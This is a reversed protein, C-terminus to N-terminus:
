KERKALPVPSHLRAFERRPTALCGNASEHLEGVTSPSVRTIEEVGPVSVRALYMEVLVKGVSSERRRAQVVVTGSIRARSGREIVNTLAARLNCERKAIL